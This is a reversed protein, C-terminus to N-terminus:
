LEIISVCLKVVFIIAFIDFIARLQSLQALPLVFLRASARGSSVALFFEFAATWLFAV